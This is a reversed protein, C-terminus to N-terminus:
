SSEIDFVPRNSNVATGRRLFCYACCQMAYCLMSFQKEPLSYNGFPKCVFLIIFKDFQQAMNVATFVFSLHTSSRARRWNGLLAFVWMNLVFNEFSSLKKSSLHSMPPGVKITNQFLASKTRFAINELHAKKVNQAIRPNPRCRRDTSRIYNQFSSRKAPAPYHKFVVHSLTLVEEVTRSYSPLNLSLKTETVKSRFVDCKRQDRDFFAHWRIFKASM